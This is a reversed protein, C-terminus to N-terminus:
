FILNVGATRHESNSLGDNATIYGNVLRESTDADVYDDATNETIISCRSFTNGLDDIELSVQSSSKDLGSIGAVKVRETLGVREYMNPHSFKIKDTVHLSSPKLKTALKV